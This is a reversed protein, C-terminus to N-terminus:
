IQVKRNMRLLNGQGSPGVSVTNHRVLVAVPVLWTNLNCVDDPDDDIHFIM